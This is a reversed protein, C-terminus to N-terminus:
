DVPLEMRYVALLITLSEVTPKRDSRYARIFEREQATASKGSASRLWKEYVEPDDQKGREAVGASLWLFSRELADALAVLHKEKVSQRGSEMRWITQETVDIM